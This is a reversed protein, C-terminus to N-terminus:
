EKFVLKINMVTSVIVKNEKFSDLAVTNVTSKVTQTPETHYINNLVYKPKYIGKKLQSIM